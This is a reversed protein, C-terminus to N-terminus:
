PLSHLIDKIRDDKFQGDIEGPELGVLEHSLYHIWQDDAPHEIDHRRCYYDPQIPLREGAYSRIKYDHVAVKIDDGPFVRKM